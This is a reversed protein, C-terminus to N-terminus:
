TNEGNGAAIRQTLAYAKNRPIGTLRRLVQAANKASLHELLIRAMADVEGPEAIAEAAGAVLVVMEGKSMMADHAVDAQLSELSGRYVQEHLKSLERALVARRASGLVKSMDALVESLRHPAVYFVLTAEIKALSELRKHRLTSRAPLFGEFWFHRTDLGSVSLAALAACPGPVPSVVIGAAAAAVVLRQGPDSVLPTGADSILAISEGACLRKVLGPVRSAENHEHLSVMSTHIGFHDLLKRSHRTDEAAILDVEALTTRARDSLDALNGIPTAVIFLSASM